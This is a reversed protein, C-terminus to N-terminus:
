SFLYAYLINERNNMRIYFLQLDKGNYDSDESSSSESKAHNYDLESSSTALPLVRKYTSKTKNPIKKLSEDSASKSSEDSEVIFDSM